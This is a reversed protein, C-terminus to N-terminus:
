CLRIGTRRHMMHPMADTDEAPDPTLGSCSTFNLVAAVGPSVLRKRSISGRIPM